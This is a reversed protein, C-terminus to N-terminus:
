AAIPRSSADADVAADRRRTRPAPRARRRLEGSGARAARRHRQGPAAPRARGDRAHEPACPRGAPRLLRGPHRRGDGGPLDCRRDLARARRGGGAARADQRHVRLVHVREHEAFASRLKSALPENRGALCVISSVEAVRTFERVAGAIDGVGWGGGSVVVMRGHEPLGLARRAEVPCRPSLFEASILPRSSGPRQRAGRDREVASISEGYMVIHTDIGSQAWFFLGTLDTITAVTPCRVVGTRRLRALVVTVAPYTSVIVDPEHEAICRALPRSGLLCLLRRTLGRIPAVHELLWYIATYTWPMFRLQM